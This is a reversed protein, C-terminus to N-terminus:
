MIADLVLWNLWDHYYCSIAINTDKVICRIWFHLDYECVTNTRDDIHKNPYEVASYMVTIIM